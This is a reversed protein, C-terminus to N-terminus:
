AGAREKKADRSTRKRDSASLMRKRLRIATPTVEILEDDEIYELASELTLQRPPELQIADDTGKSRMNTLKKEKTPNVDMDGPRSNEGVIMGEYVEDGPSVFLTSREQLNGLAFAIITGLEMSILVGRLRGQLGGAWPGYELFRHHMIGTGRTDTLFESRYGFLGRAPIKYVLRVLGQGPNKMEVMSAKRPGLKEIVTGMFEEPVDIALEEYPELREGDPGQHQIVRPRSVQFEYGERRMTEMLISLHLEGRGSVTWTDTSETDEVRLAVNRELEKELREKLQRSTVYKGDKGAFPSNNVLFDVSITPEEVAIGELREPHEPDTITLGIEVGDLGALAVIEGAPASQVEVRELGEFGFLKTVRGPAGKLTHDVPLLHVTDGVKVTGREVRGIALRGLYNSYDITSVLMQFPGAADSPPAPVHKVITEFLPTLDVAPTDLDMTSIGDRGSAYVVPADLQSENAELEILLDLVEEHVRMPDAGPRDIKNICIIVTRGLALAKRLVFRTQPMPGDFADVVLLVGDVMRLIREVEGGFDAHGPTDVINLKTDGWHISTNKALITIGRERELPNSDMVREAVVQNERFAGAQRLMQDVLTTKGHDVHAIIAINRISM